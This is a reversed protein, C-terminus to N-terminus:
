ELVCEFEYYRLHGETSAFGVRPTTKIRDSKAADNDQALIHIFSGSPLIGTPFYRSFCTTREPIISYPFTSLIIVPKSRCATYLKRLNNIKAAKNMTEPNFFPNIAKLFLDFKYYKEGTFLRQLSHLRHSTSSRRIILPLRLFSM